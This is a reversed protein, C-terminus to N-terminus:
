LIKIHKRDLVSTLIGHHSWQFIHEIKSLIIKMFLTM